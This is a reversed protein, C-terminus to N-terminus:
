VRNIAHEQAIGLYAYEEAWGLQARWCRIQFTGKPTDNPVAWVLIASQPALTGARIEALAAELMQEVSWSFCSQAKASIPTVNALRPLDPDM